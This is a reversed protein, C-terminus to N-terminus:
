CVAGRKHEGKTNGGFQVSTSPRVLACPLFRWAPATALLFQSVELRCVLRTLFGLPGPVLVM